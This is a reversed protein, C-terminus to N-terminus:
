EKFGDYIKKKEGNDERVYKFLSDEVFLLDGIFVVKGKGVKFIVVYFGEVKGGGNYIGQDVVYLWKSKM